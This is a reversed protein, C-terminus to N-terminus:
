IGYFLPTQEAQKRLRGLFLTSYVGVDIMLRPTELGISAIRKLNM